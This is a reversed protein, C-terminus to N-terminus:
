GGRGQLAAVHQLRRGGQQPQAVSIGSNIRVGQGYHDRVPQLVQECLAKLSNAVEPSHPSNDIGRQIATNSKLMEALKFNATLHGTPLQVPAPAPPPPPPPLQPELPLADVPDPPPPPRRQRPRLKAPIGVRFTVPSVTVTTETVAVTGEPTETEGNEGRIDDAIALVLDSLAGASEERIIERLQDVTLNQVKDKGAGTLKSVAMGAGPGGLVGAAVPLAKKAFGKLGM